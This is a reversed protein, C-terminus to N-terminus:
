PGFGWRPNGDKAPHNMWNWDKEETVEIGKKHLIENMRM